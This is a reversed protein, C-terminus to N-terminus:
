RRCASPSDARSSLPLPDRWGNTRTRVRVALRGATLLDLTYSGLANRVTLRMRLSYGVDRSTATYADGTARLIPTCRGGRCRLWHMTIRPAPVGSTFHPLGLETGLELEAVPVRDGVTVPLPPPVFNTVGCFCSDTMYPPARVELDPASADASGGPNTATVEVALSHEGGAVTPAITLPGM